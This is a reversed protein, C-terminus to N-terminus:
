LFHFLLQFGPHRRYAVYSWCGLYVCICAYLSNSRRTAPLFESHATIHDIFFERLECFIMMPCSSLNALNSSTPFFHHPLNPTSCAPLATIQKSYCLLLMELSMTAAPPCAATWHPWCHETLQYRRYCRWRRRCQAFLFTAWNSFSSIAILPRALWGWGGSWKSRCCSSNWHFCRWLRRSYHVQLSFISSDPSSCDSRGGAAGGFGIREAILIRALSCRRGQAKRTGFAATAATWCPM